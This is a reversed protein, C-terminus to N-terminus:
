KFKFPNQSHTFVDVDVDTFTTGFVIQQVVNLESLTYSVHLNIQM